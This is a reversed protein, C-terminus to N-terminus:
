RLQADGPICIRGRLCLIGDARLNFESAEGSELKSRIELLTADGFQATKIQQLLEPEVRFAALLVGQKKEVASLNLQGFQKVIEWELM